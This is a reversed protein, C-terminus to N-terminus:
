FILGPHLIGFLRCEEYDTGQLDILTYNNKEFLEKYQFVTNEVLDEPISSWFDLLVTIIRSSALLQVISYIDSFTDKSSAEIVVFKNMHENVSLPCKELYRDVVKPFLEHAKEFTLLAIRM